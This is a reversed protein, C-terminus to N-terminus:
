RPPDGARGAGDASEGAAPPSRHPPWPTTWGAGARPSVDGTPGSRACPWPWGSRVTRNTACSPACPPGCTATTPRWGLSTAGSIGTPPEHDRAEALALYFRRHGAETAALEGAARLREAAYQRITELLRYRVEDQRAGGM